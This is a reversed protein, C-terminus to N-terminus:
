PQAVRLSVPPSTSGTISATGSYSITIDRRGAMGIPPPSITLTGADAAVLNWTGMLAGANFVSITGTPAAVGPVSVRATLSWPQRKVIVNSAITLTTASTAPKVTITLPASTSGALASGTPTYTATISHTGAPFTASLYLSATGASTVPKTSVVTDGNKFVVTGTLPASGARSITVNLTVRKEGGYVQSVRTPTVTTTTPTPAAPVLAALHDHFATGSPAKPQMASDILAYRSNTVSESASVDWWAWPLYGVNKTDAWDMFGTIFSSGGDTQGFEGTVVPVQAAVPAIESNWCSLNSCRQGPYNHWSAVLQSDNPRYALWQRLDNSYDLGGLMVPQSAGAARVTQVLQSMGVVTYTAGSLSATYDDEVPASCGGDRWCQWTLNFTWSSTSSNWRSYPENFLDFMVSPNAAFTTAVSTWFTVSQSDPMARQGHAAYGSPASSHLDLVAVIGAANLKDVWATVADRYGQATRASGAPSGQLGLWCDQNLPIRVTNIKWSALTAAETAAPTRSYGWGQWCAYEFSPWNVGRPVFTQGTRSDVLLNGQVVPTPATTASAAPSAALLTTGLVLAVVAGVTRIGRM